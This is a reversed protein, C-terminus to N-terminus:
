VFGVCVLPWRKQRMTRLVHALTSVWLEWREACKSHEETVKYGARHPGTLARLSEKAVRHAVAIQSRTLKAYFPYPLHKHRSRMESEGLLAQHMAMDISFQLPDTWLYLISKVVGISVYKATKTNVRLKCTTTCHPPAYFEIEM